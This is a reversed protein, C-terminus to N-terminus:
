LSNVQPLAQDQESLRSIKQKLFQKILGKETGDTFELNEDLGRPLDETLVKSFCFVVCPLLGLKEISRVTKTFKAYNNSKSKQSNPGNGGAGGQNKVAKMAVNQLALDKAKQAKEKFDIERKEGAGELAEKDAQKKKLEKEKQKQRNDAQELKLVAEIQERHVQGHEDKIMHLKEKYLVFHQLPVPRKETMQVFIKKAKARGVWEAFERYNPVTASLMVLGVHEPLKMIVEEWM